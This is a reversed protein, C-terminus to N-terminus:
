QVYMIANVQAYASSFQIDLFALRTRLGGAEESLIELYFFLVYKPFYTCIAAM